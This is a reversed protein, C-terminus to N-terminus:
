ALTVALGSGSREFSRGCGLIPPRWRRSARTGLGQLVAGVGGAHGDSVHQGFVPARHSEGSRAEPIRGMPQADDAM